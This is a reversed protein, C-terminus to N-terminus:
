PSVKAFAARAVAAALALGRREGSSAITLLAEYLEPAAAILRANAESAGRNLTVRAIVTPLDGGEALVYRYVDGGQKDDVIWPGPTHASM